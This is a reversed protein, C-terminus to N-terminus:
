SPIQLTNEQHKKLAMNFIQTKNCLASGNTVHHIYSDKKKFVKKCDYCQYIPKSQTNSSEPLSKEKIQKNNSKIDCPTTTTATLIVVQAAVRHERLSGVSNVFEDDDDDDDDDDNDNNNRNGTVVTSAKSADEVVIDIYNLNQHYDTILKIYTSQPIVDPLHKDFFYRKSMSLKRHETFTISSDIDHRLSCPKKRDYHKEMDNKLHSIYFCRHCLFFSNDKTFKHPISPIM